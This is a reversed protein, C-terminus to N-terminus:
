LNGHRHSKAVCYTDRSWSSVSQSHSNGALFKPPIVNKNESTSEMVIVLEKYASVGFDSLLTGPHCKYHSICVNQYKDERLHM